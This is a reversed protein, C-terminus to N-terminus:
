DEYNRNEVARDLCGKSCFHDTKIVGTQPDVGDEPRLEEDPDYYRITFKLSTPRKLSWPAPFSNECGTADCMLTRSDTADTRDTHTSEPM